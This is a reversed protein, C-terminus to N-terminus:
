AYARRPPHTARWLYIVGAVLVALWTAAFTITHWRSQHSTGAVTSTNSSFPTETGGSSSTTRFGGIGGFPGVREAPRLSRAAARAITRAEAQVRPDTTDVGNAALWALVAEPRLGRNVALPPPTNAAPAIPGSSPSVGPGPPPGSTVAPTLRLEARMTPRDTGWATGTAVVDVAQYAGSKPHALRTTHQVVHRTPVLAAIAASLAFGCVVWALLLALLLVVFFSKNADRPHRSIGAVRLDAGCEPCTLGM